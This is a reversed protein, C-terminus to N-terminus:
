MAGHAGASASAGTPGAAPGAGAAAASGAPLEAFAAWFSLLAAILGAYGAIVMFVTAIWGGLAYCLFVLTVALALLMVPMPAGTRMAGLWLVLSALALTINFWGMFGATGMGVAGFTAHFSWWLGSWFLFFVGYWAEQRLLSALGAYLLGLMALVAAQNMAAEGMVAAPYWGAAPMSFAWGAIALTLFGLVKPNAIRQEM